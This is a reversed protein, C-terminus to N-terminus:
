IFCLSSEISDHYVIIGQVIPNDVRGRVFSLKLKNSSIAGPIKSGEFYVGEKTVEIEIYEEHASYKGGSLKVVDFDERVVKNGIKINFVREGSNKFYM